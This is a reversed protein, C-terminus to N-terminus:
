FVVHVNGFREHLFRASDAFFAKVLIDNEGTPLYIYIAANPSATSMVSLLWQEPIAPLQVHVSVAFSSESGNRVVRFEVTEALCRLTLYTDDPNIPKGPGTGEFAAAVIPESLSKPVTQGFTLTIYIITLSLVTLLDALSVFVTDDDGSDEPSIDFPHAM